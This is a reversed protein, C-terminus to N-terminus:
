ISNKNFHKLEGASANFNGNRLITELESTTAESQKVAVWHELIKRFLEYTGISSNNYSKEWQQFDPSPTQLEDYFRKWQDILTSAGNKNILINIIESLAITSTNSCM